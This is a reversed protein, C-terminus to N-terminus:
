SRHSTTGTSRAVCISLPWSKTNWNHVQQSTTRLEDTMRTTGDEKISVRAILKNAQVNLEFVLIFRYNM